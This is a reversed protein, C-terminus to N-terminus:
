SRDFRSEGGSKRKRGALWRPSSRPGIVSASKVPRSFSRPLLLMLLDNTIRAVKSSVRFFLLSISALGVANKIHGDARGWSDKMRWDSEVRRRRRRRRRGRRRRRLHRTPVAPDGKWSGKTGGGGDFGALAVQLTILWCFRDIRVTNGPYRWSERREIRKIRGRIRKRRKNERNM